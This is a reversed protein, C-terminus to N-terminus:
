RARPRCKEKPAVNGAKGNEPLNPPCLTNHSSPLVEAPSGADPLRGASAHQYREIYADGNKKRRSSRVKRSSGDASSHDAATAAAAAPLDEVADYFLDDAIDRLYLEDVQKRLKRVEM